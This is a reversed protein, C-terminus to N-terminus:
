ERGCIKRYDCYRCAKVDDCQRFPVSTDFLEALKEAVLAEFEEMYQSYMAGLTKHERDELLPSYDRDHMARLYYLAPRVDDASSHYQMMAYLMTKVINSIRDGPAGNFLSDLGKYDLHKGGTKYDIIRMSGDAMRDIRDARGEFRVNMKRGNSEFPFDYAVATELSDVTFDDHAADYELLNRLYRMVVNRVLMLDGGYDDATATEDNLYEHNIAEDVTRAINDDASAKRLVEGPRFMGRVPAYLKEAAYHFINGLIRDDVTDEIEEVPRIGAVAAFYFKLPCDVYLSYATPSLKASAGPNLYRNMADLTVGSKEVVVPANEPRCVDVGVEVHRIDFGTEYELQRIYRSPEGTSKEDAHSCYVMCLKECRQILRYFYYAYVGEHHEPTPMGYAFRLNYPVFSSQAVHNGPFNDDNMSLLIVNRFDLNRTELIGMVQVGELPEGEFPIRVTQMHRRLLSVYVPLTVDIDCDNLSNRLKAVNEAVVALYETRRSADSKDYPVLAIAEVAELLYDSLAEWSDAPRFLKSLLAGDSLIDAAVAVKRNKRVTELLGTIKVPDADAVYPHSLLGVVDSHYFYLAGSKRDTRKHKQLEVLLEVLSYALTSKLPYGMTVNVKGVSAPLSHLLPELLNEDTLVIATEKDLPGAASLEELVSAVYKCQLVNSAASVASIDSINCFHDHSVVDRPPFMKLNERVFMGAEQETGNVYYSDYDWYFDVDAVSALYKFLRKECSSLANFGAIVYHRKRKPCATGDAIRDVATRYMRGSYAIGLESLRDGFEHYIPALSRWLDLFRRKEASLESGDTFNKWFSVIRLQEPTLYSIDAEIEKIDAVNRFLRDADIMYKDVTDFDALLMDGWFYFRDFSEDHHRSYVKYLETLLRIRDGTVLGSLEGMLDDVTLWEPQWLPREAVSALADLFFIRARRSPFVISLLPMDDGYRDYLRGAVESLFTQM